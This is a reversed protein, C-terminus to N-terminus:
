CTGERVLQRQSRSSSMPPSGIDMCKSLRCNSRCKTRLSKRKMVPARNAPSAHLLRVRSFPSRANKSTRGLKVRKAAAHTYTQTRRRKPDTLTRNAQEVLAPHGTMMYTTNKTWPVASTMSMAQAMRRAKHDQDNCDIRNILQMHKVHILKTQVSLDAHCLWNQRDINGDSENQKTLDSM